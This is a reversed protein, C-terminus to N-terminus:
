VPGTDDFLSNILGAGTDDLSFHTKVFPLVSALDDCRDIDHPHGADHVGAADLFGSPGLDEM